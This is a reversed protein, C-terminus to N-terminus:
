RHVPRAALIDVRARRLLREPAAAANEPQGRWVKLRGGMAEAASQMAGPMAMM